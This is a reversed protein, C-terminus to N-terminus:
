GEAGEQPMADLGVRNPDRDAAVPEVALGAAIAAPVPENSM